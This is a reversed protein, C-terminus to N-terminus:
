DANARSLLDAFFQRASEQEALLRNRDAVDLDPLKGLRAEAADIWDLFFQISARSIRPRGGKEVYYPGSTALQYRKRDTTVARVLFWGSQDFEVPPLRGGSKALQDLRVEGVARGNKVIELYDIPV